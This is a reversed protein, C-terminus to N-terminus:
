PCSLPSVLDAMYKGKKLQVDTIWSSKGEREGHRKITFGREVRNRFCAPYSDPYFDAECNGDKSFADEEKRLLSASLVSRPEPSLSDFLSSLLFGRKGGSHSQRTPSFYFILCVGLNVFGLNM